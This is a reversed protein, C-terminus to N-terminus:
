GTWNAALISFDVLDVKGDHNLDSEKAAPTTLARHFWFALISFDIINVKGEHNLDGIRASRAQKLINETGVVFGISTGFSSIENKVAAKSKALHNGKELPATDLTYLYAGSADSKVKAFLETESNITITVESAPSSQGFIAINDGQKVQSKDVDITPAIFIGGVNTIAGATVSVPFSLLSSRKGSKDESYVSFIYNGASLNTLSIQFQADAGAVSTAGIQADKLLTISSKPYARGSFNATADGGSPPPSSPGGIPGGSNGGGSNNAPPIVPATPVASVETSTAITSGSGDLVQLIFYYTTGATLSSVTHSLVNGVSTFAYPGGSTSSRGVAYGGVAYGLATDAATWTLSALEVGATASVVPTSVYPYALFGSRNIYSLSSSIAETFPALSSYLSYNTSTAYGGGVGIGPTSILYNASSAEQANAVFPLLLVIALLPWRM